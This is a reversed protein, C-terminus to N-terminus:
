LSVQCTLSHSERVIIVRDLPCLRINRLSRHVGHSIFPYTATKLHSHWHQGRLTVKKDELTSWAFRPEGFPSKQNSRWVIDLGRTLKASTISPQRDRTSWSSRDAAFLHLPPLWTSLLCGSLAVTVPEQSDSTVLADCDTSCKQAVSGSGSVSANMANEAHPRPEIKKAPM